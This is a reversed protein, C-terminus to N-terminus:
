SEVINNCESVLCTIVEYFTNSTHKAEKIDTLAELARLSSAENAGIEVIEDETVSAPASTAPSEPASSIPDIHLPSQEFKIRVLSKRSLSQRM